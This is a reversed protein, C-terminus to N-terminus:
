MLTTKSLRKKWPCTLRLQALFETILIQVVWNLLSNRGRNHDCCVYVWKSSALMQTKWSKREISSLVLPFLCIFILSVTWCAFISYLSMLTLLYLFTYLYFVQWFFFLIQLFLFGMSSFGVGQFKNLMNNAFQNKPVQVFIDQNELHENHMIGKVQAEINRLFWSM